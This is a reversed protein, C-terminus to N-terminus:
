IFLIYPKLNSHMCGSPTSGIYYKLIIMVTSELVAYCKKKLYLYLLVCYNFCLQLYVKSCVIKTEALM